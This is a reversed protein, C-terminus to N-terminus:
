SSPLQQPYLNVGDQPPFGGDNPGFSYLEQFWLQPAVCYTQVSEGEFGLRTSELRITTPDRVVGRKRLEARSELRRHQAESKPNPFARSHHLQHTRGGDVVLLSHPTSSM